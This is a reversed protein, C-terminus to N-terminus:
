QISNGFLYIIHSLYRSGTYVAEYLVHLNTERTQQYTIDFIIDIKCYISLQDDAMLIMFSISLHSQYCIIQLFIYLVVYFLNQLHLPSCLILKSSTSSQMFYTKFIYLVVYFLNQLHLLNCLILKSSTSSQMFYTKFIYFIVYFLNQLHLPSCLILKSSTSSQMFYTKFIYLVVYFLNQLHLLNCLILKSSTSSQM